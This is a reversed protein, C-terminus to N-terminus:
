WKFMDLLSSSLVRGVGVSEGRRDPNGSKYGDWYILRKGICDYFYLDKIGIFDYGEKMYKIYLEMLSDSILDDSGLNIVYDLNHGEMAKMAANAKAGLPTNHYEIYNFGHKYCMKRSVDGESGVIFPMVGFNDMLRKIGAAYIEFVQPRKWMMTKIGIRM